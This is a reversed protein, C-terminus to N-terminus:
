IVWNLEVLWNLQLCYFQLTLQTAPLLTSTDTSNCITPSSIHYPFACWASPAQPGSSNPDLSTASLICCGASHVRPSRNLLGPSRSLCLASPGYSHPWFIATINPRWRGRVRWGQTVRKYGQLLTLPIYKTLSTKKGANKDNRADTIWQTPTYGTYIHINRCSAAYSFIVSAYSGPSKAFVLM